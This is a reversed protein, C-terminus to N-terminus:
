RCIPFNGEDIHRQWLLTDESVSDFIKQNTGCFAVLDHASLEAAIKAIMEPPLKEMKNM